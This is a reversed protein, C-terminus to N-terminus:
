SIPLEVDIHRLLIHSTVNLHITHHPAGGGRGFKPLHATTEEHCEVIPGALSYTRFSYLILMGSIFDPVKVGMSTCNGHRVRTTHFALHSLSPLIFSHINSCPNAFILCRVRYRNSCRVRSRNCSRCYM